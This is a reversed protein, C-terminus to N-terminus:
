HLAKRHLSRSRQEARDAARDIPSARLSPLHGRAEEEPIGIGTDCVRCVVHVRGFVPPASEIELRVHGSAPFQIANGILNILVLRNDDIM